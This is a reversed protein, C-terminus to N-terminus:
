TAAATKVEEVAAKLRAGFDYPTALPLDRALTNVFEAFEPAFSDRMLNWMARLVPQTM